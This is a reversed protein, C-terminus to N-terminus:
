SMAEWALASLSCSAGLLPMISADVNDQKYHPNWVYVPVGLLGQLVDDLTPICAGGGFLMIAVPVRNAQHTQLYWFTRKLEDVLEQLLATVVETVSERLAASDVKADAKAVGAVDFLDEYGADKEGIGRRDSGLTEPTGFGNHVLLQEASKSEIRLESCLSQSLGRVSFRPVSRVFCPQGDLAVVFTSTSYGLDLAAVCRNRSARSDAVTARALALPLADIAQCNLGADTVDTALQNSWPESMAFAIVEDSPHTGGVTPCFDVVLEVNSPLALKQMLDETSPTGTQADVPLSVMSNLATTACCAALKGRMRSAVSKATAIEAETTTPQQVSISDVDWPNARPVVAADVLTYGGGNRMLQAVKVSRTGVDVGIWGAARSAIM